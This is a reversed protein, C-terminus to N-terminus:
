APHVVTNGAERGAPSWCFGCTPPGPNRCCWRSRTVEAVPQMEEEGEMGPTCAAAGRTGVREATPKCPDRLAPSPNQLAARTQWVRCLACRNRKKLTNQMHFIGFCCCILDSRPSLSDSNWLRQYGQLLRPHCIHLTPSGKHGCPDEQTALM